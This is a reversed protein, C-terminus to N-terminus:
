PKRSIITLHHAFANLVTHLLLYNIGKLIPFIPNILKDPHNILMDNREWYITDFSHQELLTTIRSISYLYDHSEMGLRRAIFETYSTQQPLQFVYFCGNTKLVRRIEELIAPVEAPPIHEIVAYAFVADFHDNEYPIKAGNYFRFNSPAYKNITEWVDQMSQERTKIKEDGKGKFFGELSKDEVTELGTVNYGLKALLLTQLGIGCGFDLVSCPPPTYSKVIKLDRAINAIHARSSYARFCKRLFPLESMSAKSKLEERIKGIEKAVDM